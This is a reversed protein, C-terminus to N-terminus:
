DAFLFGGYGGARVHASGAGGAHIAETGRAYTITYLVTVDKHKIDEAGFLLAVGFDEAIEDGDKHNETHHNRVNGPLLSAFFERPVRTANSLVTTALVIYTHLRIECKRGDGEASRGRTM